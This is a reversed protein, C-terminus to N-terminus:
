RAGTASPQLCALVRRAAGGFPSRAGVVPPKGREGRVTVGRDHPLEAVVPRGVIEIVDDADL